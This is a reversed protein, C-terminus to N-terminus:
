LTELPVPAAHPRSALMGDILALVERRGVNRVQEFPTWCMSFDLRAFVDRYRRLEGPTLPVGRM